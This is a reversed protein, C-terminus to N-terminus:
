VVSKRDVMEGPNEGGTQFRQWLWWGGGAVVVGTIALAGILIVAENKQGM